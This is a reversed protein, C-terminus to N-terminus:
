PGRLRFTGKKRGLSAVEGREVLNVGASKIRSGGTSKLKVGAANTKKKREQAKPGNHLKKEDCGGNGRNHAESDEDTRYM